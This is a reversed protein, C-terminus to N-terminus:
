TNDRESELSKAYDETPLVCDKEVAQRLKVYFEIDEVPMSDEYECEPCVM